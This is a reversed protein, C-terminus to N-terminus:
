SFKKFNSNKMLNSDSKLKELSKTLEQTKKNFFDMKESYSNYIDQKKPTDNKKLHSDYKKLYDRQSPNSKKKKRFCIQYIFVILIVLIIRFFFFNIKLFIKNKIVFPYAFKWFDM